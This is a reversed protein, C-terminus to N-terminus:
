RSTKNKTKKRGTGRERSFLWRTKDYTKGNGEQSWVRFKIEMDNRSRLFMLLMGSPCKWLNHPKEDACIRGIQCDENDLSPNKSFVENTHSDRPELYWVYKRQKVVRGGRRM